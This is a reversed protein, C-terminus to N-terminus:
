STWAQAVALVPALAAAPFYERGRTPKWGDRALARLTATELDLADPVSDILHVVPLGDARHRLLRRRTDGSTIGFKIEFHSGVIYFTDWVVGFACPKCIGYGQSVNAPTLGCLALGLLVNAM